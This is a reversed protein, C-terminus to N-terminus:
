SSLNGPKVLAFHVLRRTNETIRAIHSLRFGPIWVIHGESCILPYTWRLRRPLKVNVWFDSLKMTKGDMGFPQFRDGPKWCRVELPFSLMDADVWAHDANIADKGIANWEFLNGMECTLYWHNELNVKGNRPLIFYGKNNMVPYQKEEIDANWDALYVSDGEIFINVRDIVDMHANRNPNDIFNVVREIADFGIDRLQPRLHDLAYRIVNRREGNRLGRISALSLEVYDDKHSKLCHKWANRTAQQIIAYDEAMNKSMNWILSKVSPNYEKLYPILEHRLRNRFYTTDQNTFDVVSKLNREECYAEIDDRWVGLLPRVLPIHTDLHQFITHYNMGRLGSVGSGRLLHMLVTEVQDDATHAVAVAQANFIQAQKFLFDYRLIRAAEEISLKKDNAYAVVNNRETVFPKDLKKAMSEVFRVDEVSGPRIAHDFHAIVIDFNLRDFLDLMCISDPGGSVGLIIIQSKLLRCENLLINQIINLDM